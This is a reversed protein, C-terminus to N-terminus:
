PMWEGANVDLTAGTIARAQDSALFIAANACDADDPVVGLATRGIVEALVQERTLGRQRALDAIHDEATPGWMWGMMVTNVRIRYPGLELALNRAAAHLAAKSAGYGTDFRLPKRAAMTGIMVISGGGAAKMPAIVAQSVRLTGYFNVKFPTRYKEIDAEEFLVRRGMAYASNILADVRGFEALTAEVLHQCQAPESIDTPVPLARGGAARLEDAARELFSATRAALVVHGGERVAARALEVGLGPGVGSIIVVKDRLLM